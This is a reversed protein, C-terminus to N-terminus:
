ALLSPEAEGAVSMVVGAFEVAVAVVVRGVSMGVVSLGFMLLATAPVAAEAAGAGAGNGDGAM